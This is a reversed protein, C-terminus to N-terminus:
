PTVQYEYIMYTVAATEGIASEANAEVEAM